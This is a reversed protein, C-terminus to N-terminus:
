QSVAFDHYHRVLIQITRMDLSETDIQKMTFPRREDADRPENGEHICGNQTRGLAAFRKQKVVFPLIECPFHTGNCWGCIHSTYSSISRPAPFDLIKFPQTSRGRYFELFIEGVLFDHIESIRTWRTVVGNVLNEVLFARIVAFLPEFLIVFMRIQVRISRADFIFLENVFLHYMEAGIIASPGNRIHDITQFDREALNQIGSKLLVQRGFDLNCLEGPIDAFLRSVMM